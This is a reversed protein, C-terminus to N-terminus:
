LAICVCYVVITCGIFFIADVFVLLFAVLVVLLCVGWKELFFILFYFAYEVMCGTFITGDAAELAACVLFHSYDAVAHERARRAHEVLADSGALSGRWSSLSSDM